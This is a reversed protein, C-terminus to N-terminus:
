ERGMVGERHGGAGGGRLCVDAPQISVPHGPDGVLDQVGVILCAALVPQAHLATEEAAEHRDRHRGLLAHLAQAVHVGAEIVM